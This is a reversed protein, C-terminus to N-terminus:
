PGLRLTLWRALVVSTCRKKYLTCTRKGPGTKSGPARAGILICPGAKGPFELKGINEPAGTGLCLAPAGCYLAVIGGIAPAGYSLWAM